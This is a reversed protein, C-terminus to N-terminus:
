VYEQSCLAPVSTPGGIWLGTCGLPPMRKPSAELGPGFEGSGADRRTVLLLLPTSLARRFSASSSIALAIFDTCRVPLPALEPSESVSSFSVVGGRGERRVALVPTRVLGWSFELSELAPPLRFALREVRRFALVPAAFGRSAGVSRLLCRSSGSAAGDPPAVVNSCVASGTSEKFPM